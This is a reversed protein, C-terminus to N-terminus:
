LTSHVRTGKGLLLKKQKAGIASVACEVMDHMDMMGSNLVLDYHLPDDVNAHFLHSASDKREHDTREVYREADRRTMGKHDILNNIRKERPAVVRIHFGREPGLIFNGGRGILVVGGKHSMSLVVKCLVRFYDSYDVEQGTLIGEVLVDLNNRFHNALDEVVRRNYGSEECIIDIIERHLRQYGLRQALLEGFYAGGSGTQRSVTVILSNPTPRKGVEDAIQKELEWRLIQRNIISDISSM